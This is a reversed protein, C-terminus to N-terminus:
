RAINQRIVELLSKCWYNSNESFTFTIPNCSKKTVVNLLFMCLKRKQQYCIAENEFNRLDNYGNTYATIKVIGKVRVKPPVKSNTGFM